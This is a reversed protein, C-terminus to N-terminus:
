RECYTHGIVKGAVSLLGNVKHTFRRDKMKLDFLGANSSQYSISQVKKWNGGPASFGLKELFPGMRASQNLNGVKLFSSIRSLVRAM